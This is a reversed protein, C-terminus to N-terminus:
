TLTIAGTARGSPHLRPRPFASSSATTLAGLLAGSLFAILIILM